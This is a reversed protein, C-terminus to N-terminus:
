SGKREVQWAAATAPSLLLFCRGSSTCFDRGMGLSLYFGVWFDQKMRRGSLLAGTRGLAPEAAPKVCVMERGGKVQKHQKVGWGWLARPGLSIERAPLVQRGRCGANTLAKLLQVSGDVTRRGM